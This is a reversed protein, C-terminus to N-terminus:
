IRPLLAQNYCQQKKTQKALLLSVLPCRLDAAHDTPVQFFSTTTLPWPTILFTICHQEQGGQVVVSIDGVVNKL